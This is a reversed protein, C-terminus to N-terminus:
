QGAGQHDGSARVGFKCRMCVRQRAIFRSEGLRRRCRRCLRGKQGLRRAWGSLVEGLPTDGALRAQEAVFGPRECEISSVLWGIAEHLVDDRQMVPLRPDTGARKM